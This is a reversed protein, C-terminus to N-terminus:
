FLLGCAVIATVLGQPQRATGQCQMERIVVRCPTRQRNTVWNVITAATNATAVAARGSTEEATRAPSAFIVGADDSLTFVADVDLEV